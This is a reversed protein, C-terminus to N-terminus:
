GLLGAAVVSAVALYVVVPIWQALVDYVDDLQGHCIRAYRELVNELRGAQEGASVLAYGEAVDLLEAKRLSEALPAGGELCASAKGLSARHVANHTALRMNSLAERAAVGSAVNLALAEVADAREHLRSLRGILPLMRAIRTALSPPGHSRWHRVVGRATIVCAAVLALLLATTIAYDTTTIRAQFLAPIPLVLIAFVLIFGPLALRGKMRQWRAHARQYREALHDFVHDLRGADEAASVLARDLAPLLGQQALARSFGTGKSVASRARSLPVALAGTCVDNVAQLTHEPTLGAGLGLALGSYLDSRCSDDLPLPRIARRPM